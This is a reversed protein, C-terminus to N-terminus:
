LDDEVTYAKLKAVLANTDVTWITATICVDLKKKIYELKLKLKNVIANKKTLREGPGSPFSLCELRTSFYLFQHTAM